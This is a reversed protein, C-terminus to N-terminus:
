SHKRPEAHHRLGGEGGQQGLLSGWEYDALCQEWWSLGAGRTLCRVGRGGETPRVHAGRAGREHLACRAGDDDERREDQRQQHHHPRYFGQPHHALAQEMEAERIYM